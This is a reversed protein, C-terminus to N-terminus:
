TVMIIYSLIIFLLLRFQIFISLDPGVFTNAVDSSTLHDAAKSLKISHLKQEQPTERYLEIQRKIFWCCSMFSLFLNFRFLTRTQKSLLNIRFLIENTDYVCKKVRWKINEVMKKDWM